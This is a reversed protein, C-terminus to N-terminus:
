YDNERDSKNKSKDIKSSRGKRRGSWREPHREKELTNRQIRTM